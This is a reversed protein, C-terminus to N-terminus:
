TTSHRRHYGLPRHQDAHNPDGPSLRDRDPHADEPREGAPSRSGPQRLGPTHLLGDLGPRTLPGPAQTEPPRRQLRGADPRSSDRGRRLWPRCGPQHVRRHRRAPRSVALILLDLRRYPQSIATSTRRPEPSCRLGQNCEGPAAAAIAGAIATQKVFARRNPNM